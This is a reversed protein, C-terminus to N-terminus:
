DQILMPEVREFDLSHSVSIDSLSFGGQPSTPTPPTRVPGIPRLGPPVGGNPGRFLGQGPPVTVQGGDLLAAPCGFIAFDAVTVQGTLTNYSLGNDDFFVPPMVTQGEDTTALGACVQTTKTAWVILPELSRVTVMGSIFPKGPPISGTIAQAINVCDIVTANHSGLNNQPLAIPTVSSAWRSNGTAFVDATLAATNMGVNHLDVKTAYNAVKVVPEYGNDGNDSVQFGCEFSVSYVYMPPAMQAAAPWALAMALSLVTLSRQVKPSM